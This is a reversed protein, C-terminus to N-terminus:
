CVENYPRPEPKPPKRACPNVANSGGLHLRTCHYLSQSGHAGAENGRLRRPVPAFLSAIRRFM